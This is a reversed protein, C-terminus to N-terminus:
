ELLVNLNEIIYSMTIIIEMKEENSMNRINNIMETNLPKINRIDHIYKRFLDSVNHNQMKYKKDEKDEKDQLREYKEESKNKTEM